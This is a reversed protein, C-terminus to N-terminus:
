RGVAPINSETVDVLREPKPRGPRTLLIFLPVVLLGVLNSSGWELSEAVFVAEAPLAGGEYGVVLAAFLNNSLHAGIAIELSRDRVTVWGLAFGVSFYGVFAGVIDGSAEPNLLHPVAFLAGSLASLWVINGSRKAAWQIIWGRFFLEESTTQIPLLVLAVALYPLFTPLNLSFTYDDSGLAVAFLVPGGVLIVWVWFGLAVRWWRFPTLTSFLYRLKVGLIFRYAILTALFLPIFTVLAFLLYGWSPMASLIDDGSLLAQPSIGTYPLFALGLLSGGVLWAVLIVVTGLIWRWGRVAVPTTYRPLSGRRRQKVGEDHCILSPLPHVPAVSILPACGFLDSHSSGRSGLAGFAGHAIDTIVGAGPEGVDKPILGVSEPRSGSLQAEEAIIGIVGFPVNKGDGYIAPGDDGRADSFIALHPNRAGLSIFNRFDTQVVERGVLYVAPGGVWQADRPRETLRTRVEGCHGPEIDEDVGIHWDADSQARGCGKLCCNGNREIVRPLQREVSEAKGPHALFGFLGDDSADASKGLM